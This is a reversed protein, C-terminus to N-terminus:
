DNFLFIRWLEKRQLVPYKSQLGLFTERNCVFIIFIAVSQFINILDFVIWYWRFEDEHAAFSVLEFIWPVGMVLYLKGFRAMLERSILLLLLLTLFNNLM